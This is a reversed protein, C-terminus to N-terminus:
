STDKCLHKFLGFYVLPKQFLQLALMRKTSYLPRANGPAAAQFVQKSDLGLLNPLIAFYASAERM